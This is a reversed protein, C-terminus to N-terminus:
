GIFSVRDPKEAPAEDGKLWALVTDADSVEFPDTPCDDSLGEEVFMKEIKLDSVVMAYRWSRMGFGLNNKKVLMGMARSFDGNGDPLLSINKAGLQKAWNFMVFADNISLCFIEDIGQAKFEEFLEDYRPLHTSSCTPTYAGPLAFVVVKKGAFIDRTTKIEWRYPNEGEVSEDRIRLNFSVNPLEPRFM